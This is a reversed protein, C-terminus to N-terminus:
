ILIFRYIIFQQSFDMRNEETNHQVSDISTPTCTNGIFTAVCCKCHAQVVPKLRHNNTTTSIRSYLQREGIRPGPTTDSPSRHPM